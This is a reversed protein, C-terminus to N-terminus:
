ALSWTQRRKIKARTEPQAAKAPYRVVLWGTVDVHVCIWFFLNKCTHTTLVKVTQFVIHKTQQRSVTHVQILQCNVLHSEQVEEQVRVKNVTISAEYDPSSHCCSTSSNSRSTVHVGQPLM